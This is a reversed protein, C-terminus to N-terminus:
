VTIHDFGAHVHGGDGLRTQELAIQAFLNVQQNAIMAHTHFHALGIGGDGQM